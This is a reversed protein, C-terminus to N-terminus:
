AKWRVRVTDPDFPQFRRETPLITVEILVDLIARRDAVTLQAWRQAAQEGAVETVAAPIGRPQAARQAAEIRPFTRAELDALSELSLRDQDVLLRAHALKARLRTLEDRAAAIEADDSPSLTALVDPQSLRAVLVVEILEDVPRQLRSVRHCKRCDYRKPKGIDVVVRMRGDCGDRGCRYLGGGLHKLTKPNRFKDLQPDAYRAILLQHPM